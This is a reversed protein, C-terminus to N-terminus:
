NPSDTMMKAERYQGPTVGEIKKFVRIFTNQNDIGVLEGVQRVTLNRQMLLEKAKFIRYDSVYKGFSVGGTRRFILGVYSPSLGMYDSLKALYIDHAYQRHIYDLMRDYLQKDQTSRNSYLGDIVAAYVNQLSSLTPVAWPIERARLGERELSQQFVDEAGAQRAIRQATFLLAYPTNDEMGSYTGSQGCLEVLQQSVLEKEGSKVRNILQQEDELSYHPLAGRDADSEEALLIGETSGPMDNRLALMADILSNACGSAGLLYARGAGVRCSVGYKEYLTQKLQAMLDYIVEPHSHRFDINFLVLLKGDDHCAAYSLLAGRPPRAMQKEAWGAIDTGLRKELARLGNEGLSLDFIAAQVQTHPLQIGAEALVHRTQEGDPLRGEMLDILLKNKLIRHIQRNIQDLEENKLTVTKVVESIFAIENQIAKGKAPAAAEMQRLSKILLAVPAYMKGSILVSMILGLLMCGFMVLMTVMRISDAQKLLARYPVVAMCRIGSVDTDNLLVGYTIGNYHISRSVGRAKVQGCIDRLLPQAEAGGTHYLPQMDDDVLLLYSDESEPLLERLKDVKLNIFSYGLASGGSLPLGSVFTLVTEQSILRSVTHRGAYASLVSRGAYNELLGAIASGTQPSLQRYYKQANYSSEGTIVTDTNYLHIGIDAITDMFAKMGQLVDIIDRTNLINDPTQERAYLASVVKDNNSIQWAFSRVQLFQRNIADQVTELLTENQAWANDMLQSAARNYILWGTLGTAIVTLTVFLAIMQVLMSRKGFFRIKRPISQM